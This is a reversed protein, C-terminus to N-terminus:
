LLHLADDYGTDIYLNYITFRGFDGHLQLATVDNTGEVTIESYQNTDINANVLIVSRIKSNNTLHSSPYQVRWKSNARMKGFTDLYPEQILIIDWDEHISSNILNN